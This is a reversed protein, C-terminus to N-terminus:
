VEFYKGLGKHENDSYGNNNNLLYYIISLRRPNPSTQKLVEQRGAQQLGFKITSFGLSKSAKVKEKQSGITQM